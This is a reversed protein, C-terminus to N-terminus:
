SLVVTGGQYHAEGLTPGDVDPHKYDYPYVIIETLRDYFSLGLYLTLRVAAAAIVVKVEDTIKM